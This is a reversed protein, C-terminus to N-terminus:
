EITIKKTCDNSLAKMLILWKIVYREDRNLGDEISKWATVLQIKCVRNVECLIRM